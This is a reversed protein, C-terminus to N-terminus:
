TKLEIHPTDVFTQDTIIEGDEDWNGGWRINIGMQKATCLIWAAVFCMAEKSYDSKGNVYCYFDFARAPQYNHKSKLNIGDIKSLGEDYYKKQDELSRHGEAIGFDVPCTRIAETAVQQLFIDCTVLKELSKKGFKFM